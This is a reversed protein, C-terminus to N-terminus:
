RESRQAAYLAILGFAGIFLATLGFPPLLPAESSGLRMAQDSLSRIRPLLAALLSVWSLAAGPRAADLVGVISSASVVALGVAAAALGSRVLYTFGLQLAYIAAFSCLIPVPVLLFRPSVQLSLSRLGGFLLATLFACEALVLACVAVFIGGALDGRSVPQTLILISRRPDLLPPAFLAALAVTGPVLAWYVFEAALGGAKRGLEAEDSALSAGFRHAAAAAGGVVDYRMSWLFLGVALLALALAVWGIKRAILDAFIEEAVRRVAKLGRLMSRQGDRPEGPRPGKAPPEQAAGSVAAEFSAELDQRERHVEDILAGEARLRDLVLNLGQLGDHTVLVANGELQRVGELAKQLPAALVVVSAGADQQEQILEERVVRGKHLIAIRKCIRQTESLLHSNLFV